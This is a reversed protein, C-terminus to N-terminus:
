MERRVKAMNRIKLSVGRLLDAQTNRTSFNAPSTTELIEAIEDMAQAQILNYRHPTLLFGQRDLIEALDVGREKAHEAMKWFEDRAMTKIKDNM